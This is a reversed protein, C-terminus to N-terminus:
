TGTAGIPVPEESTWFTKRVRLALLAAVLTISIMLAIWWGRIGFMAPSVGLGALLPAGALLYGLPLCFFWYAATTLCFPVTTDGTGRLMGNLCVQVSDSLQFFAAVHLVSVALPLVATDSTFLRLFPEACLTMVSTFVAGILLSFAAIGVVAARLAENDGRGRLNGVRISAAVSLASPTAFLLMTASFCIQHAAAAVAGATAIFLTIVTFVLYESTVGLGIPVGIALIIKITAWEPAYLHRFFDRGSSGLAFCIYLATMFMFCVSSVSTALGCGRLGLAPLGLNGFMLGYNLLANIGVMLISIVTVPVVVKQGECFFRLAFAIGAFPMGALTMRMYEGALTVLDDAVGFWAIHHSLGWVALAASVGLGLGLWMGQCAIQRTGQADGAGFRQSVLMLMGYLVGLVFLQLPVWMAVGVAASALEMVGLRAAMATDVVGNAIGAYQSILLPGFLPGIGVFERRLSGLLTM